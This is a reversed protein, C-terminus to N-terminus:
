LLPRLVGDLTSLGSVRGLELLAHLGADRAPTTLAALAALALESERIRLDAASEVEWRGHWRVAAREYRDVDLESLLVTFALADALSLRGM